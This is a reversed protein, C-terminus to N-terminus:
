PYLQPQLQVPLGDPGPQAGDNGNGGGDGGHGCHAEAERVVVYGHPTSASCCPSLPVETDIM